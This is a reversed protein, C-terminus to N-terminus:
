SHILPSTRGVPLFTLDQFEAAPLKRGPLAPRFESLDVTEMM